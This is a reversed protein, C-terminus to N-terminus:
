RDLDLVIMEVPNGPAVVNKWQRHKQIKITKDFWWDIEYNLIANKFLLFIKLNAFKLM